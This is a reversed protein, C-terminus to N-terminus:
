DQTPKYNKEGARIAVNLHNEFPPLPCSYQESYACYPNYALNFDILLRGGTLEVPELYRGAGYTERGSTADRFPIFLDDHHLSRYIALTAAEGEIEFQVTGIRDYTQEDGTSTQMTLEEVQEATQLPLEFRLAPEPPFYTLGTFNSKEEIPSYHHSGFFRDKEVREAEITDIYFSPPLERAEAPTSTAAEPEQGSFVKKITEIISM